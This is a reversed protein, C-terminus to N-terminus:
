SEWVARAGSDGTLFVYIGTGVALAIVAVSIVINVWGPASPVRSGGSTLAVLILTMLGLAASFWFARDGYESHQQVKALFEPGLGQARLREELAEGSQTAVFAAIPGGIALLVAAWGIKSRVRPVVAYVISVLVLLPLFVVAAHVILPHVPLGSIQDFVSV